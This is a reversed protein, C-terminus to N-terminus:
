NPLIRIGGASTRIWPVGAPVHPELSQVELEAPLGAVVGENEEPEISCTTYLVTGGPKVLRVAAALMDHQKVVLDLISQSDLRWKLEPHRRFTGTGTCPGDLLVLDWSNEPYPPQMADAVVVPCGGAREVLPLMLRARNFRLDSAACRRWEGLRLMLASKGGPAACLDLLSGPRPALSFAMHAVLQSSPDQAYAAGEQVEMILRGANNPATWAGSCWPHPELAIGEDALRHHGRRDFFWVWTVAPKQASEMADVAAQGGFSEQWRRFLWKPHSLRIDDSSQELVGRWNSTAKRLVANAMSAASSRGLRRVLWVAGDTALPAPVDLYMNEALGIRLAARVEPDLKDIKRRCSKALVADIARLSRLVELVRVRAAPAVGGSLLRSSFAGDEVRILLRAATLRDASLRM